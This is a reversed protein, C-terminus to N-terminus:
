QFGDSHMIVLFVPHTLTPADLSKAPINDGTYEHQM